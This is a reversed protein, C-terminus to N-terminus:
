YFIRHKASKHPCGSKAEHYSCTGTCSEALGEAQSERGKEKTCKIATEKSNKTTRLLKKEKHMITTAVGASSSKCCLM